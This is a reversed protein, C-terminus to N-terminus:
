APIAIGYRCAVDCVAFFPFVAPRQQFIQNLVFSPAFIVLVICDKLRNARGALLLVNLRGFSFFFTKFEAFIM